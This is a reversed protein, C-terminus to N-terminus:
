KTTENVRGLSHRRQDRARKEPDPAAHGVGDQCAQHRRAQEGVQSRGCNVLFAPAAISSPRRKSVSNGSPALVPVTGTAADVLHLARLRPHSHTARATTTTTKAKTLIGNPELAVLGTTEPGGKECAYGAQTVREGAVTSNSVESVIHNKTGRREELYLDDSLGVRKIVLPM